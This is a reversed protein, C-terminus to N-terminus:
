NLSCGSCSVVKIWSASLLLNVGGTFGTKNHSTISPASNCNHVIYHGNILSMDQGGSGRSQQQQYQQQGWIMANQQHRPSDGVAPQMLRSTGNTIRAELLRLWYTLSRFYYERLLLQYCLFCSSLYFLLFCLHLTAAWQTKLVIGPINSYNYESRIFSNLYGWFLCLARELFAYLM